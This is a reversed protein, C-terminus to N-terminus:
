KIGRIKTHTNLSAFKKSNWVEESQRSQPDKSRTPQTRMKM